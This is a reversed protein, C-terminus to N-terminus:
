NENPRRISYALLWLCRADLAGVSISMEIKIHQKPRTIKNASTWSYNNNNHSSRNLMRIIITSKVKGDNRHAIEDTCHARRYMCLEVLCSVLMHTFILHIPIRIFHAACSIKNLYAIRVRARNGLIFHANSHSQCSRTGSM